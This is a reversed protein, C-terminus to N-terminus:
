PSEYLRTMRLPGGLASAPVSATGALDEPCQRDTPIGSDGTSAFRVWATHMERALERPVPGPGLLNHPGHLSPLDLRDFVFPLDLTHCAGLTDGFAGSRWGFEYRFTRAGSPGSATAHARALSRSGNGFLHDGMIATRLDAPTTGPREERYAALLRDPGSPSVRSALALLDDETTAGLAGSPALYLAAEETTNGILLDVGAGAGAAVADSPQRELTAPDLVPAFPTLGLLPDPQGDATTLDLGAVRTVGEVLREDTIGAFAAAEAPVGLEAALARTIRQAQEATFSGEGTGSQVVARRFLGKAAPAALLSATITAGASQGYLTVNDPDGGLSAINEQIWSLAAIVDLMGRNAPADPLLLWGPAGLRYNCTVLVVGDRAFATGDYMPADGTGTTFGGGHLFLMVPLGRAGPDPTWVSVTLYEDGHRRGPGSLASLDIGRVRSGPPPAPATPGLVSADRVGEWRAPPAPAEFRAAGTLPAAYPIGRFVHVGGRRVGRLTGASVTVTTAPSHPSM